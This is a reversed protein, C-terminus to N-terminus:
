LLALSCLSGQSAATVGSAMGSVPVPVGSSSTAGSGVQGYYNDGWAEAMQARVFQSQLGAAALAAVVALERCGARKSGSRIPIMAKEERRLGLNGM